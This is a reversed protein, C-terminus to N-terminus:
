DKRRVVNREELRSQGINNAEVVGQLREMFKRRQTGSGKLNPKSFLILTRSM